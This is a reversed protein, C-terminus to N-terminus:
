SHTAKASAYTHWRHEDFDYLKCARTNAVYERMRLKTDAIRGPFAAEIAATAEDLHYCPIRQDVHHPVHLFIGHFFVDLVRPIRFVKTADMQAAVKTWESRAPWPMDTGIHHVYVTFGIFWNFILFPVVFLKVVLWLAELASGTLLGVSVLTGTLIIITVLRLINRDRRIGAEWKRPPQQLRIMKNWWVERLYYVGPGLASWEVRHRLRQFRNLEAYETPTVPHWVFDMGQRATHRHHIHNHGLVWSEYIHQSPVFLAIGVVRNLSRSAFLSGHAADHGLVFLGAVSIGALLWLPILLWWTNTFALATLAAGYIVLDRAVLMMGARTPRERCSDPIAHVVELLTEPGGSVAPPESPRDIPVAQAPPM